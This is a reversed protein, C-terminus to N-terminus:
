TIFNSELVKIFFTQFFFSLISVLFDPHKSGLITTSINTSSGQWKKLPFIVFTAVLLIDALYSM